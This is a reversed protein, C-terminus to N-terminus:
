KYFKATVTKQKDTSIAIIYMGKSLCSLDITTVSSQLKMPRNVITGDTSYIDVRYSENGSLLIDVFNGRIVISPESKSSINVNSTFDKDLILKLGGYPNFWGHGHRPNTPDPYDRMNSTEVIKQIDEIDLQPNAQLWCAISGAVYPTAMSTGADSGWYHEKGDVTTRGSVMETSLNQIAFHYNSASNVLGGPAVTLPLNRGDLLTGYGSSQIVKGEVLDNLVRSGGALIPASKSTCYMGVTVVNHGTSLDSVSFKSNASPYGPFPRPWTYVCDAYIDAKVGPEGFFEPALIYRAWRGGAQPNGEECHTLYEINTFWRGNLENIGGYIVVDGQFFKGFEPDTEPSIWQEYGPSPIIKECSYVAKQTVEDFVHLRIGIPKDDNSWADCMGYMDFQVWDSSYLLMRWEPKQESFTISYTGNTNGENGSAICVIAEEGILDLYRCFLSTGDHPGNYNGVSLNIVAPKGVSKAYELIDECASLLGVDYLQATCAVIDANPAMGSLGPDHYSGAMINAVHTGHYTYFNDTTWDAIEEPSELVKRIGHPEDYYVYRKIRLNGDADKFAIHNPDFGIDCMGVVVDQGNFPHPLGEGSHMKDAGYQLRALNLTPTAKRGREIHRVGNIKKQASVADPILALLMDGRRHWIIVGKSLLDEIDADDEIQIISPIYTPEEEDSPKLHLRKGSISVSTQMIMIFVGIWFLCKRLNPNFNM